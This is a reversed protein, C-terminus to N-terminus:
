AEMSEPYTARSLPMLLASGCPFFAVEFPFGTDAIVRLTRQVSEKQEAFNEMEEATRNWKELM